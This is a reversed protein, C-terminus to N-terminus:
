AQFLSKIRKIDTSDISGPKALQRRQKKTLSHAKHQRYAHKRKYHGSKTVKIRKAAAKNTKMKNKAM